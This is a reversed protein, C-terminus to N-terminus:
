IKKSMKKANNDFGSKLDVEDIFDTIYIKGRKTNLTNSFLPLLSKSFNTRESRCFGHKIHTYFLAISM